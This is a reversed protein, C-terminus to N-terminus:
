KVVGWDGAFLDEITPIWCTACGTETNYILCQYQYAIHGNTEEIAEKAATPLSTMNPIRDKNCTTALQCFLVKNDKRWARRTIVNGNQLRALVMDFSHTFPMHEEERDILSYQYNRMMDLQVLMRNREPTPIEKFDVASLIKSIKNRLERLENQMRDKFTTAVKYVKEFAYAPSWSKYGDEYEVYYGPLGEWHVQETDCDRILGLEHAEGKTM